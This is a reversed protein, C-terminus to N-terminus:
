RANWAPGALWLSVLRSLGLMCAYILLYGAAITLFSENPVIRESNMLVGAAVLEFVAILSLLSTDKILVATQGLIPPLINAFAQPLVVYRLRQRFDMGVALAGEVQGRPVSQIGVRVIESMYAAHHLTLAVIGLILESWAKAAPVFFPLAYYVLYIQVLLPTARIFQIYAAAPRWITGRGAMRALALLVGLIVSCVLSVGAAILTNALGDGFQDLYQGVIRWNYYDILWNM